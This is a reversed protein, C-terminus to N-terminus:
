ASRTGSCSGRACVQCHVPFSIDSRHGHISANNHSDHRPNSLTTLQTLFDLRPNFRRCFPLSLTWFSRFHALDSFPHILSNFPFLALCTVIWYGTSCPSSFVDATSHKLVEYIFADGRLSTFIRSLTGPTNRTNRTSLPGRFYTAMNPIYPDILYDSHMYDEGDKSLLNLNGYETFGLIAVVAECFPDCQLVSV